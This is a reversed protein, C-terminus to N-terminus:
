RGILRIDDLLAETMEQARRIRGKSLQRTEVRLLAEVALFFPLFLRREKETLDFTDAFAEIGVRDVGLYREGSPIMGRRGMHMLFRAMDKYIPMRRSGGCDIGTLAPYPGAILNNPHFDGHGIAVRWRQGDIMAALRQMEQILPTELARLRAFAQGSAARAARTAWGEATTEHDTESCDTYLRLWRAAPRLWQARREPAIQYFHELLPTGPVDSVALVGAQPACALPQCIMAAGTGMLPWMRQLEAWHKQCSDLDTHYVRFVARRGTLMGRLITRKGEVHRIMETVDIDAFAPDEAGAASLIARASDLPAGDPVASSFFRRMAAHNPM